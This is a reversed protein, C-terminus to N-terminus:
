ALAEGYRNQNVAIDSYELKLLANQVHDAQQVHTFFLSISCSFLMGRRATGWIRREPTVRRENLFM